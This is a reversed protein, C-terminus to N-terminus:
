EQEPSSSSADPPAMEEASRKAATPPAAAVQGAEQAFTPLIQNVRLGPLLFDRDIRELPYPQTASFASESVVMVRVVSVPVHLFLNAGLFAVSAVALGVVHDKPALPTAIAAIPAIQYLKWLVLAMFVSAAIAAVHSAPTRFLSLMRRQDLSLQEPKLSVALVSFISFPRLWQMLLVPGIGVGAVLLFELWAPLIPDGAALGLCVVELALPVAALGALHIWLFPESWFSRM